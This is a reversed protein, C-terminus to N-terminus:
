VESTNFIFPSLLYINVSKYHIDRVAAVFVIILVFRFLDTIKKFNNKSNEQFDDDTQIQGTIGCKVEDEICSHM